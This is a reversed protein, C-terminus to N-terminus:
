FSERRQFILAALSLLICIYSIAMLCSLAMASYNIPLNYLASIRWDLRSLDPILWNIVDLLQKFNSVMKANGDAGAHIYELAAGLGKGAIAYILGLALPLLPTTAFTAVLLAFSTVVAVDLYLGLLTFWFPAGLNVIFQQQYETNAYTAAMLLMLAYILTFVASLALVAIYRSILYQWRPIPYALTFYITKKDIEKSILEQIWFIALFVLTIRLFSFGVDLAVTQPQRPSFSGTLYALFILFAGFLAIGRITNGRLGIQLSSKILAFM